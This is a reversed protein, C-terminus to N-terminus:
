QCTRSQDNIQRSADQSQRVVLKLAEVVEGGADRDFVMAQLGKDPNM